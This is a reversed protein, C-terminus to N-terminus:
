SEVCLAHSLASVIINVGAIYCLSSVNNVRSAFLNLKFLFVISLQPLQVPPNSLSCKMMPDTIFGEQSASPPYFLGILREHRGVIYAFCHPVFFILSRSFSLM